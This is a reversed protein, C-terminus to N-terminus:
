FMKTVRTFIQKVNRLQNVFILTYQQKTLKNDIIFALAEDPTYPIIGISLFNLYAKKIKTSRTPTTLCEKLLM